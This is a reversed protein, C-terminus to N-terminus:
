EYEVFGYNSGSKMYNMVLTKLSEPMKDTDLQNVYGVGINSFVFIKSRVNEPIKGRINMYYSNLGIGKHLGKSVQTIEEAVGPDNALVVAKDLITESFEKDVYRSYDGKVLNEVPFMLLATRLEENEGAPPTIIIVYPPRNLNKLFDVDFTNEVKFFKLADLFDLHSYFVAVFDTQFPVFNEIDSALSFSDPVSSKENKSVQQPAPSNNSSFMNSIVLSGRAAAKSAIRSSLIASGVLLIFVCVGALFGWPSLSFSVGDKLSTKSGLYYRKNSKAAGGGTVGGCVHCFYNDAKTLNRGCQPCTKLM